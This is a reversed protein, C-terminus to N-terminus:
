WAAPFLRLIQFFEDRRLLLALVLHSACFGGTECIFALFSALIGFLMENKMFSRSSRAQKHANEETM